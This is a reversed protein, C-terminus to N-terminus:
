NMVRVRESAMHLAKYTGNYIKQQLTMAVSVITMDDSKPFTFTLFALNTSLTSLETGITMQLTSGTQYITVTSGQIKTFQIRSYYPQGNAQDIIISNSQAQRLERTMLYMAGRAEGQLQLKARGLVFVKTMQNVTQPALMAVIGLIAMTFMAEMLTM